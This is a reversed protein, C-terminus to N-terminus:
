AAIRVSASAALSILLDRFDKPTASAAKGSITPKNAAKGRQDHFGIQHTGAPTNWRLPPPAYAGCYLLWTRKRAPHGYASLAIDEPDTDIKAEAVIEQDQNIICVQTKKVSVDLGVYYAAPATMRHSRGFVCPVRANRADLQSPPRAARRIIIQGLPAMLSHLRLPLIASAWGETLGAQFAARFM